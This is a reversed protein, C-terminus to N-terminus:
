NKIIRSSVVGKETEVKVIYTGTQLQNISYEKKNGNFKLIQQGLLNYIILQKVEIDGTICFKDTIPNPYLKLGLKEFEPTGLFTFPICASTVQYNGANTVIVAYNGSVAPEFFQNTENLIPQNGNDCDIWQYTANNEVATLRNANQTVGNSPYCSTVNFTEAISNCSSSPQSNVTYIGAESVMVSQNNTGVVPTITGPGSWIYTAYGDAASLIIANDCVIENRIITCGGLYVSFETPVSIASGCSGTSSNSPEDSHIATNFTGSYTAFAQNQIFGSCATSYNTCFFTTAKINIQYLPDGVEVLSNPITLILERTAPNYTFTVGPPLAGPLSLSAPDFLLNSPIIDKITFSTVNDNGTNQFSIIYNIDDGSGVANNSGSVPIGFADQVELNLVIKPEVIDVAFANFYYFYVDQSSGLAITASTINNGLVANAPNNINFIGADFGLTNSGNPNRTTFAGSTTGISSNFFNNSPRQPTSMVTGNIRLYDGTFQQDGELAAMAFKARVPGAPITRFGSIPINLTTAGGVGSFGDFSVISKTISTPDEYVVFLSWGASLGTGGATGQSSLVNAITYTGEPNSLPTILSTVNAYCTYPKMLDSGIPTPNADYIIEGTIDNYDGTPLKLKVKNIDVRSGSQLTASWYLGAYVIRSCTSTGPVDLDASSSNFTTADSDIDIFEMTFDSNVGSGNYPNNPLSSVGSNRNLISNGIQLMDGKVDADFRPTFPIFNQSFSSISLLLLVVYTAKLLTTKKM